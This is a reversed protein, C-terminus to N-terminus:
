AVTGPTRRLRSVREQRQLRRVCDVTTSQDAPSPHRESPADVMNDSPESGCPVYELQKKQESTHTRELDRRRGPGENKSDSAIKQTTLDGKRELSPAVSTRRRLLLAISQTPAQLSSRVVSDLVLTRILFVELNAVTQPKASIAKSAVRVNQSQSVWFRRQFRPSPESIANPM